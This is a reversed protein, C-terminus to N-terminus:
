FPKVRKIHCIQTNDGYQVGHYHNNKFQFWLDYRKGAMNHRGEKVGYVPIELSSPWNTLRYQNDNKTLYLVYKDGISMSMLHQADLKGCCEFCIKEDKDNVGYGTTLSNTHTKETKCNDCFFVTTTM